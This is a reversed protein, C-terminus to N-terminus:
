KKNLNGKYIPFIIVNPMDWLLSPPIVYFSLFLLYGSKALSQKKTYKHHFLYPHIM